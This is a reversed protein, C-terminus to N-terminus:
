YCDVYIDNLHISFLIDIMTHFAVMLYGSLYYKELGKNFFFDIELIKNVHSFLINSHRGWIAIQFKSTNPHFNFRMTDHLECSTSQM